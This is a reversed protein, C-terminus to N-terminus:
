PKSCNGLQRCFLGTIKLTMGPGVRLFRKLNFLEGDFFSDNLSTETLAVIDYDCSLANNSFDSTKTRLGRVNQYYM